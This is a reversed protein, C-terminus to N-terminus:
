ALSFTNYELSVPYLTEMPQEIVSTLKPTNMVRVLNGILTHKSFSNMISSVLTLPAYAGTGNNPWHLIMRFLGRYTRENGWYKDAGNNPIHVLELYKGDSPPNFSVGVFKVPLTPTGSTAVAAIVAQQLAQLIEKEIM